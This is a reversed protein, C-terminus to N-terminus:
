KKTVTIYILTKNHQPRLSIVALRHPKDFVLLAEERVVQALLDWGHREMEQDYFSKLELIPTKIYYVFTESTFLREVPLSGLPIPIDSLKAEVAKIDVKFSRSKKFCGSFCLSFFFAILFFSM